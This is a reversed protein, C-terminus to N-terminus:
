SQENVTLQIKSDKRRKGPKRSPGYLGGGLNPTLFKVFKKKLQLTKILRLATTFSM